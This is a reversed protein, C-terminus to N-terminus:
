IIKLGVIAKFTVGHEIADVAWLMKSLEFDNLGVKEMTASPFEGVKKFFKTNILVGNFSGEVFDCKRDVVPFLVDTEKKAWLELKEEIHPPVRSGSFMLFAWESKCKKMGVNIMSTVTNSGKHTEVFTKVSKLETPSTDGPLICISKRDYSSHQISGLSNKIGGLNREPCLIM